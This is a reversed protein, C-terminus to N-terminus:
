IAMGATEHSLLEMLRYGPELRIEVEFIQSFSELLPPIIEQILIERKLLQSLSTVEKDKLGCPNIYGFPTLDNNVNLAFGHYSIGKSIAIGISCVKKGEVWVGPCGCLRGAPLALHDLTLIVVEELSRVYEPIDKNILECIFYCVLQGPSHYTVDGGRDTAILAFGQKNLETVPILINERAAKVGLTFIPPHELLLLVNSICNRARLWVLKIQWRYALNYEVLGLDFARWVKDSSISLM